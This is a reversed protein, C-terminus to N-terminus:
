ARYSIQSSYIEMLKSNYDRFNAHETEQLYQEYRMDEEQVLENEM